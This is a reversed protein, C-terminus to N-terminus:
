IKRILFPHLFQELSQEARAREAAAGARKGGPEAVERELKTM